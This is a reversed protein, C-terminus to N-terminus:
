LAKRMYDQYLENNEGIRNERRDSKRKQGFLAACSDM